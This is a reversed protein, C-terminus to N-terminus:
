EEVTEETTEIESTSSSINTENGKNEENRQESFFGISFFGVFVCIVVFLRKSIGTGNKGINRHARPTKSLKLFMFSLMGFFIVIGLLSIGEVFVTFLFLFAFVACVIGAIKMGIRPKDINYNIDWNLNSNIDPNMNLNMDPNMNSNMDSNIDWNMSSNENAQNSAQSSLIKAKMIDFEQQTITGSELLQKCKLLEDVQSM